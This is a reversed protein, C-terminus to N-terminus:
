KIGNLKLKTLPIGLSGSVTLPFQTGFQGETSECVYIDGDFTLFACSFHGCGYQKVKGEIEKLTFEHLEKKTTIGMNVYYNYGSGHCDGNECRIVCFTYGCKIEVIKSTIKEELETLLLCCSLDGTTEFNIIKDDEDLLPPLDILNINKLIVHNQTLYNYNSFASITASIVNEKELIAKGEKEKLNVRYFKNNKTIFFLNPFEWIIKNIKNNYNLFSNQNENFNIFSKTKDSYEFLCNM